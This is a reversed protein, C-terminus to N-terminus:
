LSWVGGPASWMSIGIQSIAASMPAAVLRPLHGRLLLQLGLQKRFLRAAHPPMHLIIFLKPCQSKIHRSINKRIETPPLSQSYPHQTIAAVAAPSLVFSRISLTCLGTQLGLTALSRRGRRQRCRRCGLTLNFSVLAFDCKAFAIESSCLPM